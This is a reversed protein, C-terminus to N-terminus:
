KLGIFLVTLVKVRGESNDCRFEFLESVTRFKGIGNPIENIRQLFVSNILRSDMHIKSRQFDLRLFDSINRSDIGRRNLLLRARQMARQAAHATIIPNVKSLDQKFLELM